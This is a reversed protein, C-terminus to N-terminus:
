KRRFQLISPKYGKKIFLCDKDELFINKFEEESLQTDLGIKFSVSDRFGTDFHYPPHVNIREATM